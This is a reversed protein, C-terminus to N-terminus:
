SSIILYFFSLLPALVILFLITNVLQRLTFFHFDKKDYDKQFYTVIAYLGFILALTSLLFFTFFIIPHDTYEIYKVPSYWLGIHFKKDSIGEVLLLTFFVCFLLWYWINIKKM